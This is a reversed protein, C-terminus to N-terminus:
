LVSHCMASSFRENIAPPLPPLALMGCGNFAYGWHGLKRGSLGMEQVDWFYWLSIVMDKIGPAKSVNLVWIMSGGAINLRILLETHQLQIPNGLDESM